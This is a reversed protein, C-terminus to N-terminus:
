VELGEAPGPGLVRNQLNVWPGVCMGDMIKRFHKWFHKWFHKM